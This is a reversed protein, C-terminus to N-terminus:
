RVKRRPAVSLRMKAAQMLKSYKCYRMNKVLFWRVGKAYGCRAKLMAIATILCNAYLESRITQYQEFHRIVDQLYITYARARGQKSSLYSGHGKPNCRYKMLVENMYVGRGELMLSDMAFFWEMFERKPDHTKRSSKRYAYSGHVAITGWLALDKYDFFFLEEKSGAPIGTKSIYSGDDSFYEARHFVLNISSDQKFLDYQKQLKGPLMVDDGDFEFIVDGLNKDRVLLSLRQPHRSQYEQIISVSNDTSCDDAVLIECEFNISQALISDLCETIYKEHNYCIVVVTAKM